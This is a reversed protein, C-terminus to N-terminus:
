GFYTHTPPRATLRYRLTQGVSCKELENRARLSQQPFLPTEARRSGLWVEPLPMVVYCCRPSSCVQVQLDDM